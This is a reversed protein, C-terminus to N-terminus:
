PLQVSVRDYRQARSGADDTLVNTGAGPVATQSPLNPNPSMGRYGRSSPGRMSGGASEVRGKTARSCDQAM